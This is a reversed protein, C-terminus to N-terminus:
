ISECEVKEENCYNADVPIHVVDYDNGGYTYKIFQRSSFDLHKDIEEMKADDLGYIAGPRWRLTILKPVFMLLIAILAIYHQSKICKFLVVGFMIVTLAAPLANYFISSWSDTLVGYITGDRKFFVMFYLFFISLLTFLSYKLLKKQKAFFLLLAWLLIGVFPGVGNVFVARFMVRTFVFLSSGATLDFAASGDNIFNQV